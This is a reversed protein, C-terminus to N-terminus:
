RSRPEHQAYGDQHQDRRCVRDCAEATFEHRGEVLTVQQVHGRGQRSDRGALDRLQQLLAIAEDLRHGLDGAHEAFGTARLCGRVRRRQFHELGRHM